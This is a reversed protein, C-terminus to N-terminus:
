KKDCYFVFSCRNGQFPETSHAKSAVFYFPKCNINLIISEKDVLDEFAIKGDDKPYYKLAGGTYRECAVIMSTGENNAYRHPKSSYNRNVTISSFCFNDDIWGQQRAWQIIAQVVTPYRYTWLSTVM